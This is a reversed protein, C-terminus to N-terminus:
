GIIIYLTNADPTLGDYDAQTLRRINRVPTSDTEDNQVPRSVTSTSSIEGTLGVTGTFLPNSFMTTKSENTVNGLGAADRLAAADAATIVSQGTATADTIDAAAIDAGVEVWGANNGTGATLGRPLMVLKGDTTEALIAFDTTNFAQANNTLNALSVNLKRVHGREGEAAMTLQQHVSMPTAISQENDPDVDSQDQGTAVGHLESGGLIFVGEVHLDNYIEVSHFFGEDNIDNAQLATDAKAGQTDTAYDAPDFSKVAALNTVESDMLAGAATVNATDTVDANAEIGDLKTKDDDEFAGETPQFQVNLNNLADSLNITTSM